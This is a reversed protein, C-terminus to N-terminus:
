EYYRLELVNGDPDGFYFAEPAEGRAGFSQKMTVPIAIGREELRRRVLAYDSQSMALCLHNAKNGATGAAGPLANMKAAMRKPMLDLISDANLRVSPFAVSGTRFEEARVATAGLVEVYFAVSVTPDEVWLVMHDVRAEM